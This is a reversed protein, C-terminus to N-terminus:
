ARPALTIAKEPCVVVCYGCARCLDAKPTRATKRGHARSKLRAFFGLAGFEEDTLTGVEFVGYPCVVVCDAKGECRAQNIVPVWTGAPARCNEGPRNPDALAQRVLESKDRPAM